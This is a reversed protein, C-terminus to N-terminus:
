CSSMVWGLTTQRSRLGHHVDWAAICNVVEGGASKLGVERSLSDQYVCLAYIPGSMGSSITVLQDCGLLCHQEGARQQCILFSGGAILKGDYVTLAAIRGNWGVVTVLPQREM